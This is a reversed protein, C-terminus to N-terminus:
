VLREVIAGNILSFAIMLVSLVAVFSWGFYFIMIPLLPIKIARNYLFVAILSTKMGKEKLDKLLPYWMYIPGTSLIGGSVSILYGKLGSGSGLYNRTKKRELFLNSLFILGFILPLIKLVRISINRLASIIESFIEFDILGVLLYIIVMTFLFIWENGINRLNMKM